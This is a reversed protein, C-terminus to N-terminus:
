AAHIFDHLSSRASLLTQQRLPTVQQSDLHSKLQELFKKCIDIKEKADAMQEEACSMVDEYDARNEEKLEELENQYYDYLEDAAANRM